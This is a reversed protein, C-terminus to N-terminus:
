TLLLAVPIPPPSLSSSCGPAGFSSSSPFCPLSSVVVQALSQPVSKQPCQTVSHGGRGEICWINRAGQSEAMSPMSFCTVLFVHSKIRVPCVLFVLSLCVNWHIKSNEWQYRPLLFWNCKIFMEERIRGSQIIEIRPWWSLSPLYSQKETLQTTLIIGQTNLYTSLLRTAPPSDGSLVSFYCAGPHSPGTLDSRYHSAALHIPWQSLLFRTSVYPLYAHYHPHTFYLYPSLFIPSM